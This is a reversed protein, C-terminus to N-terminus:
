TWFLCTLLEGRRAEEFASVIYASTPTQRVLEVARKETVGPEVVKQREATEPTYWDKFEQEDTFTTWTRVGQYGGTKGTYEFVVNYRCKDASKDRPSKDTQAM